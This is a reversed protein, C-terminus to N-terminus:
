TKLKEQWEVAEKSCDYCWIKTQSIEGNREELVLVPRLRRFVRGCGACSTEAKSSSFIIKSTTAAGTMPNVEEM